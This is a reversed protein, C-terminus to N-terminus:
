DGRSHRRSQTLIRRSSRLCDCRSSTWNCLCCHKAETPSSAKAEESPASAKPSWQEISLLCKLGGSHLAYCSCMWWCIGWHTLGYPIQLPPSVAAGNDVDHKRKKMSSDEEASPVSNQGGYEHANDELLDEETPVWKKLETDFEFETGDDHVAIFKKDLKSFSIRDDSDFEQVDTPFPADMRDTRFSKNRLLAEFSISSWVLEITTPAVDLRTHPHAEPPETPHGTRFRCGRWFALPDVCYNCPSCKYM